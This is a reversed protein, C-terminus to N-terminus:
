GVLLRQLGGGAVGRGAGGHGTAVGAPAAPCLSTWRRSGRFSEPTTAAAAPVGQGRAM